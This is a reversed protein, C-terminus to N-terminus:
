CVDTKHRDYSRLVRRSNENGSLLVIETKALALQLGHEEMWRAVRLMMIETKIQATNLDPAVIIAAKDDVYGVLTVGDPVAM